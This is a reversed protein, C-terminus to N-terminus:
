LLYAEAIADCPEKKFEDSVEGRIETDVSGRPIEPYQVSLM